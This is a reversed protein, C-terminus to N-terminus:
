KWKLRELNEEETEKLMQKIEDDSKECWKRIPITLNRRVLKDDDTMVAHERDWEAIREYVLRRAADYNGLQLYWMKDQYITKHQIGSPCNEYWFRMLYYADETTKVEEFSPFLLDKVFSSSKKAWETITKSEFSICEQYPEFSYSWLRGEWTRSIGSQGLPVLDFRVEHWSSEGYFNCIQLVHDVVRYYFNRYIKYGLQKAIPDCEKKYAKYYLQKELM